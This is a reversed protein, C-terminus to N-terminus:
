SEVSFASHPPVKYRWKRIGESRPRHKVFGYTEVKRYFHAVGKTRIKRDKVWIMFAEFLEQRDVDDPWGGMGSTDRVGLDAKGICEDMWIDVADGTSRYIARQAELAKTEPAKNLNSTIKRELLDKMMAACGNEELMQKYMLDFYHRDNAYSDSVDLVLWRRSEPGAPIFWDENSAVVLRARNEYMFSDIGKRECVLEKETVLSKLIGAHRKDGGYIVEDAFILLGDMLHYNFNGTLHRENTVHKYHKRGIVQGLMYAFTGKGTGEKGHLVIATGKPEMPDQLLDACWDLVFTYLEEDGSCIVNKIHNDFMAWTGDAPEVGWGQWLNVYGNHWLGQDPFFGMGNVCERRDEHAMWVNAETTVQPAKKGVGPLTVKRNFFLTNFDQTGLVHIGGNKDRHVIRIKGGTLLVANDENMRQVLEDFDGSRAPDASPNYGGQKAFYILSGIRITGSPNFGPWRKRCEGEVYREGQASWTDWLNVGDEDPHQSNIAQGVFLWEEYSLVDPDIHDLMAAIQTLTYQTEEDNEGMEENGRGKGGRGWPVGMADTVWQPTTPVEGGTVWEYQGDPTVSPWAVIHSRPIGDGGRTDVGPGLKGSSSTLNPQWKLLLHKGGTPTQQVPCTLSKGKTLEDWTELGNARGHLDLDVAFVGDESGCVIGINWGRYKGGQGFWRDMTKVKDSCSQYNVGTRRDPLIKTGPRLPVVKIGAEAYLKAAEHVKTEFDEIRDIDRIASLPLLM